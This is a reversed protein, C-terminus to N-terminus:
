PACYFQALSSITQASALALLYLHSRTARESLHCCLNDATSLENKRPAKSIKNSKSTDISVSPCIRGTAFANSSFTRSPVFLIAWAKPSLLVSVSLYPASLWVFCQCNANVWNALCLMSFSSPSPKIFCSGVSQYLYLFPILRFNM